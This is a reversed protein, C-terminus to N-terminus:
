PARRKLQADYEALCDARLAVFRRMGDKGALIAMVDQEAGIRQMLISVKGEVKPAQNWFYASISEMGRGHVAVACQEPPISSPVPHDEAGNAAGNAVLCFMAAVERLGRDFSGM